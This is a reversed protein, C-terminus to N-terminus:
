KLLYHKRITEWQWKWLQFRNIPSRANGSVLDKVFHSYDMINFSNLSKGVIFYFNGFILLKTNSFFFSCCFEPVKPLSVIFLQIIGKKLTPFYLHYSEALITSDILCSSFFILYTKREIEEFFNLCM